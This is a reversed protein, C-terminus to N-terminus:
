FHTYRFTKIYEFYKNFSPYNLLLNKAGLDWQYYCNNNNNYMNRELVDDNNPYIFPKLGMYLEVSYKSNNKEETEYYSERSYNTKFLISDLLKEDWNPYITYFIIDEDKTFCTIKNGFISEYNNLLYLGKYIYYLKPIFLYFNGVLGRKLKFKIEKYDLRYSSKEYNDFINDINNYILATSDYYVLKSYQTLGLVLLKTSYYPLKIYRPLLNWETRQSINVKLLDIGIVVDYIKKIDDIENKTLGPFKLYSNGIIDIEYYPRDQVLCIIDYKTKIINKLYNGTVLISPLYKSDCFIITVYANKSINKKNKLYRYFENNKVDIKKFKEDIKKTLKSIKEFDENCRKIREQHEINM